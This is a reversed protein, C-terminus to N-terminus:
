AIAAQAVEAQAEPRHVRQGAGVATSFAVEVVRKKEKGPRGVPSQGLRDGVLSTHSRDEPCPRAPLRALVLRHPHGNGYHGVLEGVLQPASQRCGPDGHEGLVRFHLLLIDPVARDPARGVGKKLPVVGAAPHPVPLGPPNRVRTLQAFVLRDEGLQPLRVEVRLKGEQPRFRGAPAEIVMEPGVRM